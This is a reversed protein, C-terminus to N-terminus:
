VDEAPATANSSSSEENGTADEDAPPSSGSDSLCDPDVVPEPPWGTVGVLLCGPTLLPNVHEDGPYGTSQHVVAEVPAMLALLGAALMAGMWRMGLSKEM